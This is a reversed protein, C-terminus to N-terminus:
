PIIPATATVTCLLYNSYIFHNYYNNPNLPILEPFSAHSSEFIHFHLASRLKSTSKLTFPAMPVITVLHTRIKNPYHITKM